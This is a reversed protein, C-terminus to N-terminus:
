KRAVRGGRKVKGLGRHKRNTDGRGQSGVPKWKKKLEKPAAAAESIDDKLLLAVPLQLGM